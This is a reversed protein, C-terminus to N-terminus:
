RYTPAHGSRRSTMASRRAEARIELATSRSTTSTKGERSKQRKAEVAQEAHEGRQSVNAGAAATFNVALWGAGGCRVMLAMREASSKFSKMEGPTAHMFGM